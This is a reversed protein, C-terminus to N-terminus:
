SLDELQSYLSETSNKDNRALVTELKVVVELAKIVNTKSTQALKLCEVMLSKASGDAPTKEVMDKFYKYAEFAHERDVKADEVINKAIKQLRTKDLPANKLTYPSPM